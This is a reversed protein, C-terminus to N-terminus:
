DKIKKKLDEFRVRYADLLQHLRRKDLNEIVTKWNNKLRYAVPRLGSLEEIAKASPSKELFAAVRDLLEAKRQPPINGGHEYLAKACKIAQVKEDPVVRSRWHRVGYQREVGEQWPKIAQEVKKHCDHCLLVLDHCNHSKYAEPLHQRIKRPVIHHRTLQHKTQCLACVNKKPVTDLASIDGKIKPQFRLRITLPIETVLDALDNDLYWQVRKKECLSLTEGEPSQIVCNDYPTKQTTQM